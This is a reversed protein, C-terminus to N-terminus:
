DFTVAAKIYGKPRAATVALAERAATHPFRHTILARQDLTRDHMLRVADQFDKVINHSFNPAPNQVEYGRMHWTPLDVEERSTHFSFISLRGGPRLMRGATDLVGPAGAAEIVIDAGSRRRSLAREALWIDQPSLDAHVRSERAGLLREIAAVDEWALSRCSAAARGLLRAVVEQEEPYVASESAGTLRRVETVVDVDRPNLTVAAGFRRALELREDDVDIVVFRHMVRTPLAQVLLLGMYGAGILIVTDGPEVRASRVGNVVCSAPEAIWLAYDDTDPPILAAREAKVICYESLAPGGLFAVKDGPRFATVEAGVRDVVGVGEHGAVRPFPAALKGKFTNVDFMCIGCARVRILLEDPRPPPLELTTLGVTGPSSFEIAVSRPMSHNM